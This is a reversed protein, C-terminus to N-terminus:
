TTESTIGGSGVARRELDYTETKGCKCVRQKLIDVSATVPQSPFNEGLQWAEDNLPSETEVNKFKHVHNPDVKQKTEGGSAM